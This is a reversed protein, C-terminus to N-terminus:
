LLLPQLKGCLSHAINKGLILCCSIGHFICFQCFISSKNQYFFHIKKLKYKHSTMDSRSFAASTAIRRGERDLSQQKRSICNAGNCYMVIMFSNRNLDSKYTYSGLTQPLSKSNVVKQNCKSFM